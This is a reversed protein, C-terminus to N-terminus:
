DCNHEAEFTLCFSVFCGIYINHNVVKTLMEVYWESTAFSTFPFM